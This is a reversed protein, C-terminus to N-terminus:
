PRPRRPAPPALRQDVLAKVQQAVEEQNGDFRDVVLDYAVTGDYAPKVWEEQEQGLIRTIRGGHSDVKAQFAAQGEPTDRNIDRADADFRKLMRDMLVPIPNNVFVRVADWDRDNCFQRIQECGHPEAVLVAPKGEAFARKVESAQVGYHNGDYQVAEILGENNLLDLFEEKSVFYYDVGHQEGKRPARTTTSVLPEFGHHNAMEMSLVTKGASSPGTITVILPTKMPGVPQLAEM